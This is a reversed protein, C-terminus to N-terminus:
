QRAHAVARVIWLKLQATPVLQSSSTTVHVIIDTLFPEPVVTQTLAISFLFMKLYRSGRKPRM